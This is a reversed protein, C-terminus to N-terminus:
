VENSVLFVTVLASTTDKQLATVGCMLSLMLFAAMESILSYFEGAEHQECHASQM